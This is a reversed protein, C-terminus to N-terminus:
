QVAPSLARSVRLPKVELLHQHLLPAMGDPPLICPREQALTKCGGLYARRAAKTNM